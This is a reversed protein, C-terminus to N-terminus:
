VCFLGYIGNNKPSDWDPHETLSNNEGLRQELKNIVNIGAAYVKM